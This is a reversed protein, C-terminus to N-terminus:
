CTSGVAVEAAVATAVTSGIMDLIQPSSQFHCYLADQWWRQLHCEVRVGVAVEAAVATAVTRRM